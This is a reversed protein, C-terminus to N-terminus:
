KHTFWFNLKGKSIIDLRVFGFREFQVVEDIQTNNVDLEAKGKSIKNDPMLVEVNVLDKHKPLWHIIKKGGKKFDKYDESVFIFKKGKKKFNLCDMLRILQNEKIAKYDEKAIYFNENAELKRYGRKPDDPHLKLNVKKKPAGEIKIEVPDNIFFYRNAKPEIVEKNFNDISKFFEKINVTKDNKTIGVDLAYKIFAEPQYGRRRLALLFPLRIDDWGKYTGSNIKEKTESTSLKLGTFNIKGVFITEPIPVGLHKYMYEQRIANDAHDKARLIHTMGLDIDDVSVAFNMLPWVRYNKGQRPHKETNIRMAPWDRIAPNNHKLDTKIRMVADGPKYTAFMCEWRILHDAPSFDRCPCPKKKIVHKRFEEPKCKCIYAKGEQLLKEAYYYYKNMRDSQVVVKSVNDKTIWNADDPLMYYAPEYINEPNTDSIRLILEGKYKRALESNLSLSYAHGIHMPGSPSPEFRMVVRNKVNKLEIEKKKIIKETEPHKKLEIEQDELSMNNVRKVVKAILSHLEKMNKRAEPHEKIISGIIAKPNAKGKFKVANRLAYKEITREM